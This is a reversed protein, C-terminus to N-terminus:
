VRDPKLKLVNMFFLIAKKKFFGSNKEKKPDRVWISPIKKPYSRKKAIAGVKASSNQIRSRIEFKKGLSDM